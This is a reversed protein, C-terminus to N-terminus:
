HVLYLNRGSNTELHFRSDNGPMQGCPTANEDGEGITCNELYIVCKPWRTEKGRRRGALEERPPYLELGGFNHTILAAM